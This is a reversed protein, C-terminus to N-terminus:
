ILYAMIDGVNTHTNGTIILSNGATKLVTYSDYNQLMKQYGQVHHRFVKLSRQDTIAGAIDPMFDSGDTGVSALVWDHSYNELFLPTVTAYHQNRGGKGPKDPLAPTTEGGILLANYGAFKGEMVMIAIKRATTVTDGTLESSVIVPKLGLKRAKEAMAELATRNDGIIYNDANNLSKPTEAEEGRCGRELTSLISEPVKDQIAYKKIVEYADAFTTPDPYPPGSAIVSLDNGIVDSLILSIVRAPAFHYALRGGKIASIHKRVANIEHIDAGCALLLRTIEQKDALSIGEAPYPM